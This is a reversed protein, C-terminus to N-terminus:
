PGLLVPPDGLLRDALEMLFVVFALFRDSKTISSGPLMCRARVHWVEVSTTSDGTQTDTEEIHQIPTASVGTAISHSRHAVITDVPKM